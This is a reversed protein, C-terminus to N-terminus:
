SFLDFLKLVKSFFYCLVVNVIPVPIQEFCQQSQNFPSATHESQITKDICKLSIGSQHITLLGSRSVELWQLQPGVLKLHLFFDVVAEDSFQDGSDLVDVKFGHIMSSIPFTIKLNICSLPLSLTLLLIYLFMM